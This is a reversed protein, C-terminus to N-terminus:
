CKIYRKWVDMSKNMFGAVDEGYVDFLLDSSVAKGVDEYLLIEGNKLFLIKDALMLSVNIDHLVGVVSRKESKSWTHLYELLKIQGALDLHNTPEDLLIINAEQAFARSLFVRQLEGGSLTNIYKDKMEIINTALLCKEVYEKDRKTPRSFASEFHVYRGLMVTDFVTYSFHSPSIQNLMSIKKATEKRRMKKVSQGDIEVNGRHVIMNSITRLLTTKGSGNAGLISLNEGYKLSFTINKIIDEKGYGARVNTLSIANM